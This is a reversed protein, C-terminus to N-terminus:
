KDVVNMFHVNSNSAHSDMFKKTRLYADEPWKQNDRMLKGLDNVFTEKRGGALEMVLDTLLDRDRHARYFSSILELAFDYYGTLMATLVLVDLERDTFTKASNVEDLPDKFYLADAWIIREETEFARRDIKKTSIYNPYLGYLRFGKGNLFCDLEPFTKQGEYMQFFEVECWLAVCQENLTRQGSQLINYEKGQCDLKIFEGLVEGSENNKFVIDDLSKTRVTIERDLNFGPTRYRDVLMKRPRLLSSNVTSKTLYLTAEGEESGLATDFLSIQAFVEADQFHRLLKQYADKDPEFCTCHVLSAVPMILPHVGGAAGADVFGLPRKKFSTFLTTKQFRQNNSLVNLLSMRDCRHRGQEGDAAAFVM